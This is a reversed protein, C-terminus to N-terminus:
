TTPGKHPSVVHRLYGVAKLPEMAVACIAGGMMAGVIGCSAVDSGSLFLGPVPSRPRLWPDDYRQPVGALGYISGRYPRCFLETSLPTSLEVYDVLGELEPHNEYLVALIADTMRQKFEVYDDGRNRWPTDKWRQFTDWPVFTVIEGTHRQEPGPDHEPDKLSPYSTFLVNPRPMEDSDPDPRWIGDDHDWTDYFWQCCRTGGAAEVDGKFGIYLCLHAPGPPHQSIRAAWDADRHPEPLLHTVTNWAGAASVIRPARIEEGDAMRVGVARGKEVIIESVDAVIRTWGGAEAVTRLLGRAIESAGGVPYHAGWLFHRAVMAQLGWSSESPPTGHYGWQATVVARLHPDEIVETLVEEATRTLHSRAEKSVWGGLMAGLRGPLANGLFYGRMSKVTARTLDLYAEIADGQEPFAERLNQEFTTPNDPFDVVVGDPFYFRDYVPGVAKWELSGDTLNKLLRGTMSRDTMEGVIHVGVDWEYGKRRFVHTYGGPVYHQELVLVKKGLKALLAATTMGGIGSGIVIVDYSAGEPARKSWYREKRQPRQM